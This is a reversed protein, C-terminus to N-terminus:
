RFVFAWVCALILLPVGLWPINVALGILIAAICAVTTYAVVNGVFRFYPEEKEWLKRVRESRTRALTEEFAEQQDQTEGM